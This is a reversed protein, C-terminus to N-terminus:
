ALRKTTSLKTSDLCQKGVCEPPIFKNKQKVQIFPKVCSDFLNYLRECKHKIRCTCLSLAICM